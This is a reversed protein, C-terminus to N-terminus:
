YDFKLSLVLYKGVITGLEEKARSIHSERVSMRRSFADPDTCDPAFVIFTHLSMQAPRVASPRNIVKSRLLPRKTALRLANAAYIM